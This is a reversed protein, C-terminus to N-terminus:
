RRLLALLDAPHSLVATAHMGNAGIADRSGVVLGVLKGDSTRAVPAGSSGTGINLYAAAADGSGSTTQIGTGLVTEPQVLEDTNRDVVSNGPGRRGTGNSWDPNLLGTSRTGDAFHVSVVEEGPLLPTESIESAPIATYGSSLIYTSLLPNLTVVATDRDRVPTRQERDTSIFIPVGSLAVKPKPMDQRRDIIIRFLSGPRRASELVHAATILKLVGDNDILVGSGTEMIANPGLVLDGVKKRWLEPDLFDQNSALEQAAGGDHVISLSVSAHSLNQAITTV